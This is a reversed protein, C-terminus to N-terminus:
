IHFREEPPQTWLRGSIADTVGHRGPLGSRYPKDGTARHLTAGGFLDFRQAMRQDQRIARARTRQARHGIFEDM